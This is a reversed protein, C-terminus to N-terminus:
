PASGEKQEGSALTHKIQDGIMKGVEEPKQCAWAFFSDGVEMRSGGLTVMLGSIFGEFQERTM